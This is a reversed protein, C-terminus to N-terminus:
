AGEWADADLNPFCVKYSGSEPLGVHAQGSDDLNGSRLVEGGADIIEYAEGPVPQGAENVLQLEIWSTDQAGDAATGSASEVGDYRTDHGPANIAAAYPAEWGQLAVANGVGAAGGSCNINVKSGLLRIGSSDIKIYNGGAKITVSDQAELVLEKGAVYFQGAVKESHNGSIEEGIDGAVKVLRNGGITENHDLVVEVHKNEKVLEFKDKRVTLHRSCGVSEVRNNKARIHLDKEAHILLQEQDKLDEFRIENSGGGGKTSNTKICSKTKEAPLDYPPKHDANYVRGVIIPKDPDGELFDVVVEQGIRPLFMMGYAGGAMGQCVRIWCSSEAGHLKAQGNEFGERDWNFQVRVRGYPDTHIEEEAPGVVRATQTGRVHPRPTVRPPIFPVDAPMCEFRCEFSQTDDDMTLDATNHLLSPLAMADLPDDGLALAVAARDTTVQGGHFLWRSSAKSSTAAKTSGNGGSQLSSHTTAQKGQSTIKTVLYERNFSSTTHESLSFKRGPALRSCNSVGVGVQRCTEFEKLRMEALKNGEAKADFIGPCDSFELSQNRGDDHTAQLHLAPNTFTYDNLTVVGLRVEESFRFQSVHEQPAKMGTASEYPLTSESGIPPIASSTNALTMRHDDQTQSFYYCIGAHELLRSIFNFDTERYQVCYDLVDYGSDQITDINLYDSPIGARQIVDAVIQLVTRGQFIRSQYRHTLLWIVPVLDARYYAQGRAEGIHEFRSVIGHVWREGGPALISLVSQTGVVADMAVDGRESVLEIEFRYLQSLGEIGRYRSVLLQDAEMGQVQFSMQARNSETVKAM